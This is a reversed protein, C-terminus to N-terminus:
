KIPGETFNQAFEYDTSNLYVKTAFLCEHNAAGEKTPVTYNRQYMWLKQTTNLSYLFDEFSPVAHSGVALALFLALKFGLM